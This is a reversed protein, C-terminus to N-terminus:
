SAQVRQLCCARHFWGFLVPSYECVILQRPMQSISAAIFILAQISLMAAQGDAYSNCLSSNFSCVQKGEPIPQFTDPDVARIRTGPIPLGVTGRVNERAETNRCCPWLVLM